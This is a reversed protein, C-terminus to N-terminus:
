TQCFIGVAQHISLFVESCNAEMGPLDMDVGVYDVGNNVGTLGKSLEDL